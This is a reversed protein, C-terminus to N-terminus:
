NNKQICIRTTYESKGNNLTVVYLGNPLESLNASSIPLNIKSYLIQQGMLNIVKISHIHADVPFHIWGSTPNPYISIYLEKPQTEAIDLGYLEIGLKQVFLDFNGLSSLEYIPDNIHFDVTNSFAGCLNIYGTNSPTISLAIDYGTGGETVIWDLSGNNTLKQIFVDASGNSTREAIGLEPDFDVNGEFQGTTFIYGEQNVCISTAFDEGSGGLSHVWDLAGSFTMKTIFCDKLGNSTLNYEALPDPNFDATGIFYGTVYIANAGGADVAYGEDKGAGGMSKMWLFNGDPDLKVIFIDEMGNSTAWFEDIGPDFDAVDQYHGTIYYNGLYDNSAAFGMDSYNGGFSRVWIFDGASTLKLVFVDTYLLVGAATINIVDAGPHFDVTESFLGTICLNGTPDIVISNGVDDFNSGFREAWLFNGDPDLKLIFIDENGESTMYYSGIGPDFDATEFFAGTIYVNGFEDVGISHGAVLDTGAVSKVWVLHGDTNLKQIFLDGNASGTLNHVGVGPDFDVTSRFEGTSYCNGAADSIIASARDSQGGGHANAWEYTQSKLQNAFFVFMLVAIYPKIFTMM